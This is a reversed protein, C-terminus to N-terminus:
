FRKLKMVESIKVLSILEIGNEGLLKEGGQERDVVAIVRSVSAGRSRLLSAAKLVSGGTTIVDEIIDVDGATLRGIVLDKTGHEREKRVILYPIDLRLATAILLPVAGLEVGAILKSRVNKSLETALEGLLRPQTSVEKIDVYYNSKQGSTLTFDGFKIAGNDLLLRSIM